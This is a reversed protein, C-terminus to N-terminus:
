CHNVIGKWTPLKEECDELPCKQGDIEDKTQEGPKEETTEIEDAYCEKLHRRLWGPTKYTKYCGVIPCPHENTEM